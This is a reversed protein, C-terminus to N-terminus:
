LQLLIKLKIEGNFAVSILLKIWFLATHRSSSFPVWSITVRICKIGTYNTIIKYALISCIPTLYQSMNKTKYIVANGRNETNRKRVSFNFKNLQFIPTLITEKTLRLLYLICLFVAIIIYFSRNQGPNSTSEVTNTWM